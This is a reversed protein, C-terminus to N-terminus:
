WSAADRATTGMGGAAHMTRDTKVLPSRHWKGDIRLMPEAHEFQGYMESAYATTRIMGAPKFLRQGLFDQWKLGSVAEIARSALTFHINSYRVDNAIEADRLLRFYIEDTIEEAYADRHVIPGCELGHRHCLLDRVTLAETLEESPLVFDPLVDKLPADLELRGEGALVCVAMATFPKTASAIYYCTDPTAPEAAVNRVGFADLALVAGDKVVAVAFGPVELTELAASWRASLGQLETVDEVRPASGHAAAPM